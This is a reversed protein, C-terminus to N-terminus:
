DVGDFDPLAVKALAAKQKATKTKKRPQWRTNKPFSQLITKPGRDHFSLIAKDLGPVFMRLRPVVEIIPRKVATPAQQLVQAPQRAIPGPMPPLPLQKPARPVPSGNKVMPRQRAPLPPPAGTANSATPPLPAIQGPQIISGHEPELSCRLVSPQKAESAFEVDIDKFIRPMRITEFNLAAVERAVHGNAVLVIKRMAVPNHQYRELLRAYGNDSVCILRLRVTTSSPLTLPRFCFELYCHVRYIM